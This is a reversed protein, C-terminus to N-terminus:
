LSIFENSFHVLLIGLLYFLGETPQNLSFPLFANRFPPLSHLSLRVKLQDVGQGTYDADCNTYQAGLPLLSGNGVLIDGNFATSQDLIEKETILFVLVIWILELDM